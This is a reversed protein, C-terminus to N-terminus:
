EAIIAGNASQGNTTHLLVGQLNFVEFTYNQPSTTAYNLTLSGAASYLPSYNELRVDNTFTLMVTGWGNFPVVEDAVSDGDTDVSVGANAAAVSIEHDGNPFLYTPVNIIGNQGATVVGVQVSDVYVKLTTLPLIDRVRVQLNATGTVTGSPPSVISVTPGTYEDLNVATYFRKPASATGVLQANTSQAEFVSVLGWTNFPESDLNSKVGVGYLVSPTINLVDLLLGTANTRTLNLCLENSSNGYAFPRFVAIIGFLVM